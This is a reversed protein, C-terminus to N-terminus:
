PLRPRKKMHGMESGSSFQESGLKYLSLRSGRVLLRLLVTDSTLSDKPIIAKEYAEARGIQYYRLDTARYTITQKSLSDLSFDISKPVGEWGKYLIWGHLTDGNNIVLFVRQRSPQALSHGCYILFFIVLQLFSLSKKM